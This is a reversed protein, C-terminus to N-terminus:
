MQAMQQVNIPHCDSSAGVYAKKALVANVAETPHFADWFVYENRNRCPVSLPLCTIQGQNRGVGCCGEDTVRFGYNSPSNLMDNVAGFTNGYVFVADHHDSNLQDVLSKLRENFMGVIENVNSVCEGPPTFNTALQNPICGLPGVGALFIKRLGANYLELLNQTYREILLNAYDQPTYYYSTVYLTPLLYNNIYDNSGVVVMTISKALFQSMNKGGMKNRLEESSSKFNAIQQGLSFRDGLFQGTQDLIGAAASAFNVGHLMKEVTNADEYALFDIITRGNCFRGTPGRYFDIGYPLYNSKAFSDLYNNNGNDVISDGFVFM